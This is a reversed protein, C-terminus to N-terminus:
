PAYTARVAAKAPFRPAVGARTLTRLGDFHAHARGALAVSLSAAAAEASDIVIRRAVAAVAPAVGERAVLYFADHLWWTLTADLRLFGGAAPMLAAAADPATALLAAGRAASVGLVTAEHLAVLAARCVASSLRAVLVNVATRSWAADAKAAADGAANPPRKHLGGDLAAAVGNTFLAARVLAARQLTRTILTIVRDADREDAVGGVALMKRVAADGGYLIANTVSKVLARRNAAPVAASVGPEGFFRAEV